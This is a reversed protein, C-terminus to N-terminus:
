RPEVCHECRLRYRLDCPRQGGDARDFIQSRAFCDRVTDASDELHVMSGASGCCEEAISGKPADMSAVPFAGYLPGAAFAGLLIALMAGVIGSNSGMYKVFTERPVWVDMLGLLVFIPPLICLMETFNATTNGVIAVIKDPKFLCVAVTIALMALPFKYREYLKM